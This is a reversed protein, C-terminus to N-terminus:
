LFALKDRNPFGQQEPKGVPFALDPCFPPGKTEPRAVPVFPAAMGVPVFPRKKGQKGKRLEKEIEIISKCKL